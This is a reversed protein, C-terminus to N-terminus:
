EYPLCEKIRFVVDRLILDKYVLLFFFGKFISDSEIYKYAPCSEFIKETALRFFNAKDLLEEYLDAMRRILDLYDRKEQM